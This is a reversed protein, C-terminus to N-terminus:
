SFALIGEGWAERLGADLNRVVRDTRDIVLSEREDRSYTPWLPDEDEGTNPDEGRAFAVWRANMRHSVEHATKKGGLAFSFESSAADLTRWVYAIETAHAAGIGTATLLPTAHDFRYLWTPAADAHGEAVWVAPLRFGIDRAIGVGLSQLRMGETTEHLREIPPVELEPRERQVDALMREIREKTIPIIPTKMFRFPSAEDRNTGILLPVPLGRGEHLVDIPVEPILDGDVVPAFALTGPMESPIADYIQTSVRLVEALPVSRLEVADRASIGLSALVRKSIQFAREQAYVSSAPASQAIARYFLGEASPCALLTTVIAGGASEGFLTVRSPDGGFGAINTRVWELSLLVDRLALNADFDGPEGCQTLDLFGLPGVRYNITVIIVNGHNAFRVGDYEPQNASGFMFAGGHVWVMVPLPDDDPTHDEPAWINLALCDDDTVVDPSLTVMLSPLQPCSPAFDVSEVPKLAPPKPVPARWRGAGIPPEAYRIGKWSRATALTEANTEYTGIFTGAPCHAIPRDLM